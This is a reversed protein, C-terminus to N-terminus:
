VRMGDGSMPLAFGRAFFHKSASQLFLLFYNHSLQAFLSEQSCGPPTRPAVRLLSRLPLVSGGLFASLYCSPGKSSLKDFATLSRISAWFLSHRTKQPYTSAPSKSSSPITTPQWSIWSARCSARMKLPKSEGMATGGFFKPALDPPSAKKQRSPLSPLVTNQVAPAIGRAM